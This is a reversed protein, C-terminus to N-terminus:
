VGGGVTTGSHYWEHLDTSVLPVLTTQLCSLLPLPTPRSGGHTEHCVRRGRATQREKHHAGGVGGSRESVCVCPSWTCFEAVQLSRCYRLVLSTAAPRKTATERQIFARIEDTPGIKDPRLRGVADPGTQLNCMEASPAVSAAADTM